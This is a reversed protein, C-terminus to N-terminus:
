LANRRTVAISDGLVLQTDMACPNTHEEAEMMLSGGAHDEMYNDMRSHESGGITKEKSYAFGMHSGMLGPDKWQGTLHITSHGSQISLRRSPM